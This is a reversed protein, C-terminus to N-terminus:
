SLRFRDVFDTDEYYSVYLEDSSPNYLVAKPNFPLDSGGLLIRTRKLDASWVGIENTSWYCVYVNGDVDTTIGKPNKEPINATKILNGDSADLLVLENKCVDSVIIAANDNFITTTVAEAREFLQEGKPSTIASWVAYGNLDTMRVCEPGDENWKYSSIVLNGHCVTMGTISYDVSMTRQVSLSAPNSIDLFQLEDYEYGSPGELTDDNEDDDDGDGSGNGDDQDEDSWKRTSVVVRADNIVAVSTPDNSLKLTTVLKDDKTFLKLKMNNADMLILTGDNTIAMASIACTREDDVTKANLSPMKTAHLKMINRPRRDPKNTAEM